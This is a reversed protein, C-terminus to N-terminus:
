ILDKTTLADSLENLVDAVEPNEDLFDSNMVPTLSEANQWNKDDELVVLGLSEASADGTSAPRAQLGPAGWPPQRVGDDANATAVSTTTSSRARSPRTGQGRPSLRRQLVKVPHSPAM